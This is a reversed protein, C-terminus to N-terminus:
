RIAGTMGPKLLGRLVRLDDASPLDHKQVRYIEKVIDPPLDADLQPMDNWKRQKFADMASKLVKFTLIGLHNSIMRPTMAIQNSLDVVVTPKAKAPEVVKPKEVIVIKRSVQVIPQPQQRINSPRYTPLVGTQLYRQHFQKWGKEQGYKRQFDKESMLAPKAPVVPDATQEVAVALVAPVFKPPEVFAAVPTVIPNQRSVAPPIQATSARAAPAVFPIVSQPAVTETVRPSSIPAAVVPAATVPINVEVAPELELFADPRLLKEPFEFRFRWFKSSGENRNFPTSCCRLLARLEDNWASSVQSGDSQPYVFFLFCTARSACLYLRRRWALMSTLNSEDVGEAPLGEIVVVPFERGKIHTDIVQDPNNVDLDRLQVRDLVQQDLFLDTHSFRVWLVQQSNLEWEEIWRYAVLWDTYRAVTFSWYNAPHSDNKLYFEVIERPKTPLRVGDDFAFGFSNVIDRETPIVKAGGAGFWRFMLALAAGYVPSPSRYNRTLRTSCGSFSIGDLITANEGLLRLRQHRDCALILYRKGKGHVWWDRIKAQASPSLDHAEDVLLVDAKIEGHDHWQEIRPPQSMSALLMDDMEEAIRQFERGFRQSERSLVECQKPNLGVLVVKRRGLPPLAAEIQKHEWPALERKPIQRDARKELITKGSAFVAAAYALLVTKGMGAAGNIVWRGEGNPKFYKILESDLIERCRAVYRMGNPVDPHGLEPVVLGHRVKRLIDSQQVRFAALDKTKIGLFAALDSKNGLLVRLSELSVLHYFLRNDAPAVNTLSPTANDNSVVITHLYVAEARAKPYLNQLLAQAQTFLQSKIFKPRPEGNASGYEVVWEKSAPSAAEGRFQIPQAKCEILLLHDASDSKFHLLHDIEAGFNRGEVFLDPQFLCVGSLTCAPRANDLVERVQIELLKGSRFVPLLM